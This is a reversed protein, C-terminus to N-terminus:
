AIVLAKDRRKELNKRQAELARAEDSTKGREKEAAAHRRRAEAIARDYAEAAESGFGGDLFSDAVVSFGTLAGGEPYLKEYFEALGGAYVGDFLKQGFLYASRIVITNRGMSPLLRELRKRARGYLNRVHKLRKPYYYNVERYYRDYEKPDESGAQERLTWEEEKLISVEHYINTVHSDFPDPRDAPFLEHSTERLTKLNGNRLALLAHSDFLSLLEEPPLQLERRDKGYKSTFAVVRAEYQGFLAHFSRYGEYFSRLLIWRYEDTRM